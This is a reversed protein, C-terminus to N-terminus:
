SPPLLPPGGPPMQTNKVTFQMDATDPDGAHHDVLHIGSWNGTTDAAVTFSNGVRSVRESEDYLEATFAIAVSDDSRRDIAILLTATVDGVPGKRILTEAHPSFPQVTAIERFEFHGWRDHGILRFDKIAITGAIDIMRKSTAPPEPAPPVEVVITPGIEHWHDAGEAARHFLHCISWLVVDTDDCSDHVGFGIENEPRHPWDVDESARFRRVYADFSSFSTPGGVGEAANLTPPIVWARTGTQLNEVNYVTGGAPANVLSGERVVNGVLRAGGQAFVNVRQRSSGDLDFDFRWYPHHSHDLNCSLGKSFVRPLIVGDDNLYWAQYIHYAGIRAYVGLELWDKDAFRTSRVAIYRGVGAIRVLHHPGSIPNLDEGVNVPDWSIQDNYPGCGIGFVSTVGGLAEDRVYKVRIVPLSLKHFVRRGRFFGRTLTLGQRGAVAYGFSWSRWLVHGDPSENM